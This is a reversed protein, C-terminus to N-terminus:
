TNTVWRNIYSAALNRSYTYTINNREQAEFYKLWEEAMLEITTHNLIYDPM